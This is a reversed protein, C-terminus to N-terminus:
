EGPTVWLLAQGVQSQGGKPHTRFTPTAGFVVARAGSAAEGSIVSSKGGAAEPGDTATSAVWHGALLPNGEAYTQEARTGAGLGTFSVAPYVFAHDQAYNAFISGAPTEVDVIGNGSRNGQVATASVLGFDSATGFAGTGVGAFGHGEALWAQTAARGNAQSASFTLPAGLWIVDLDDLSAPDASISSASLPM